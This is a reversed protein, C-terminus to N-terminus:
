PTPASTEMATADRKSSSRNLLYQIKCMTVMQAPDNQTRSMEQLKIKEFLYRREAEAENLRLKLYRSAYEEEVKESKALAIRQLDDADRRAEDARQQFMEAEAQKLRIITELEEIQQRKRQREIQLETLERRKDEVERDCSELSLRARKVDVVKEAAVSEMKSVAEKVVEAIRSCAEQPEVVKKDESSDDAEEVETEQFLRHIEKLVVSVDTGSRLRELSEHAKEHLKKGNQDESGHFIRRLSDLERVLENIDWDSSCARFVDRAWGLLESTGGCARCRFIMEPAAAAGGGKKKKSSTGTTIQRARMACDTHTWHSCSDCGVWRCTNVDFDFKGCLLCMCSSCFGTKASCVECSCDDVPIQVHCAMNRCRTHFFVEVLASQTVCIDPHLFAQIGTKIAVLLELQTRHSRMLSAPSLDGRAQVLKQLLVFEERQRPGGMGTLVERLEAKLEELYEDPQAHFRSALAEIPAQAIDRLQIRDMNVVQHVVTSHDHDHEHQDEEKLLKDREREGDSKAVTAAEAPLRRAEEGTRETPWTERSSASESPSERRRDPSPCADSSALSLSTGRSQPPPPPPPAAAGPPKRDLSLGQGESYSWSRKM